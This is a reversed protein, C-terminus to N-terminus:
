TDTCKSSFHRWKTLAFVYIANGHRM